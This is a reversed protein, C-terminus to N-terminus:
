ARTRTVSGVPRRLHRGPGQHRRDGRREGPGRPDGGDRVCHAWAAIREPDAPGVTLAACRGRLSVGVGHPPYRCGSVARKAEAASGAPARRVGAAGLDLVRNVMWPENDPPPSRYRAARRSRPSCPWWGSRTPAATSCTSASTTLAPRAPSSPRSRPRSRARGFAPRDEELVSRSATWLQASCRARVRGTRRQLRGAACADDVFAEAVALHRRGPHPRRARHGARRRLRHDYGELAPARGVRGRPLRRHGPRRGPRHDHDDGARVPRRPRLAPPWVHPRHAPRRLRAGPRPPLAGLPEAALRKLPIRRLDALEHDEPIAAITHERM